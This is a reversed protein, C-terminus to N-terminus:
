RQGAHDRSEHLASVGANWFSEREDVLKKFLEDAVTRRGSGARGGPGSRTGSKRRCIRWSFSERRGTVVLREVVNEVQRVNGPWSYECLADMAMKSIARVPSHSNMGDVSGNGTAVGNAALNANRIGNGNESNLM